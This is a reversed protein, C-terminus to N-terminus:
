VSLPGGDKALLPFKSTTLFRGIEGWLVTLHHEAVSTTVIRCTLGAVLCRLFLCPCIFGVVFDKGLQNGAPVMTERCEEVAYVIEVQKDYFTVDPWFLEKYAM